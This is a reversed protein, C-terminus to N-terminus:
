SCKRGLDVVHGEKDARTSSRRSRKKKGGNGKRTVSANSNRDSVGGGSIGGLDIQEIGRGDEEDEELVLHEM